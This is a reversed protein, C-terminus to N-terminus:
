PLHVMNQLQNALRQLFHDIKSLTDNLQIIINPDTSNSGTLDAMVNRLSSLDQNGQTLVDTLNVNAPVPTTTTTTTTTSTPPPVFIRTFLTLTDALESPSLIDLLLQPPQIPGHTTLSLDYAATKRMVEIAYNLIINELAKMVLDIKPDDMTFPHILGRDPLRFLLNIDSVIIASVSGTTLMKFFHDSFQGLVAEHITLFDTPSTCTWMKPFMPIEEELINSLTTFLVDSSPNADAEFAYHIKDRVYFLFIDLYRFEALRLTDIMGQFVIDHVAYVIQPALLIVDPRTPFYHMLIRLVQSVMSQEDRAMMVDLHKMMAYIFVKEYMTVTCNVRKDLILRGLDNILLDETLRPDRLYSFANAVRHLSADIAAHSIQFSDIAKDVEPFGSMYEELLRELVPCIVWSQKTSSASTSSNGPDIHRYQLHQALKSLRFLKVKRSISSGSTGTLFCACSCLLLVTWTIDMKM